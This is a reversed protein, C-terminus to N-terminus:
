QNIVAHIYIFYKKPDNQYDSHAEKNVHACCRLRACFVFHVNYM